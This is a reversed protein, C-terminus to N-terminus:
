KGDGHKAKMHMKMPPGGAVILKGCIPCPEKKPAVYEARWAQKYTVPFGPAAEGYVKLNRDGIYEGTQEDLLGEILMDAIDGM